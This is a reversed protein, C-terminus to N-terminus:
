QQIAQGGEAVPVGDAALLRRLYFPEEGALSEEICRATVEGIGPLQRLTGETARTLVDDPDQGALVTAATRFARVRYTPEHARELLFAILRLDAIPDRPAAAGPM